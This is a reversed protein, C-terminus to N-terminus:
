AKPRPSAGSAEPRTPLPGFAGLFGLRSVLAVAYRNWLGCFFLVEASAGVMAALVDTPYHVGVYLRSLALGAVMASGFVVSFREWRTGRALLWIAFALGVALSVHGSPFSDFGSEPALPDALLAPNPRPREVVVKFLQASLWGVSAVSGFALANVPSCRVVLLILCALAPLVTGGVPSFIGSLAMAVANLVGDHHGSLEQDVVLEAGAYGPIFRAGFGLTLVAAVLRGPVMIWRRIQPLTELRM